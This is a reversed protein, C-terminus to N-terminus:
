RVQEVVYYGGGASLEYDVVRWHVAPDLLIRDYTIERGHSLLRSEQLENQMEKVRAAEANRASEAEALRRAQERRGSALVVCTIALVVAALRAWRVRVIKRM